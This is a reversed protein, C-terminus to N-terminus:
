LYLLFLQYISNNCKEKYKYTYNYVEAGKGRGAFIPVGDCKTTAVLNIGFSQGGCLRSM